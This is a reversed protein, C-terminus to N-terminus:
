EARGIAGVVRNTIKKPQAVVAVGAAGSLWLIGKLVGADYMMGVWAPVRPIGIRSRRNRCKRERALLSHQKAVTRRLGDTVGIIALVGLNSLRVTLKM